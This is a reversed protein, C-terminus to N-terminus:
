FANLPQKRPDNADIILGRPAATAEAPSHAEM